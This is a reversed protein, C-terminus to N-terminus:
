WITNKYVKRIMRDKTIIPLGPKNEAEPISIGNDIPEAM